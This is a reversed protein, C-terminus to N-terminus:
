MLMTLLQYSIREELMEGHTLLYIYEILVSRDKVQEWISQWNRISNHVKGRQKLNKFITEAENYEISLNIINLSGINSQDGAFQYWDEERATVLIKYNMKIKEALM